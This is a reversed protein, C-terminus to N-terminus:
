QAWCRLNGWNERALSRYTYGRYQGARGRTVPIHESHQSWGTGMREFVAIALLPLM